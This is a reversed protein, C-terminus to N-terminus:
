ELPVQTWLTWDNSPAYSGFVYQPPETQGFYSYMVGGWTQPVRPAGFGVGYIPSGLYRWSKMLGHFDSIDTSADAGPEVTIAKDYGYKKLLDMVEKIPANGQGPALHDDWKGLNDVLHVNGIMKNKLLDEVQGLYWQKFATENEEPSKGPIDVWYRRWMNAHATDFTARVHREAIQAAEEKSLGQVKYPNKGYEDPVGETPVGQVDGYLIKDETLLDVMKERVKSIVWKLETPHCGFREPFINEITLMLPNNPDRSKRMAHVAAIAYLQASVKEFRKIPTILHNKSEAADRADQEQSYGSLRDYELRAEADKIAKDIMEVPDKLDPTIIGGLQGTVRLLSEDQKMIKWREDAPVNKSLEEYFEKAKRLKQLAEVQSNMGSSFQLAWGRAYGERAELTAQMYAEDPYRKLYYWDKDDESWDRGTVKQYNKKLWGNYEEAEKVFYNYHRLDTKFRQGTEDHEPVRGRVPDYTNGEKIKRGEYNVYDGEYVVQGEEDRQPGQIYTKNGDQDVGWGSKAARKWVPYSIKRSKQVQDFVRSDRDDLLKFQAEVIESPGNRFMNRRMGHGADQWGLNIRKGGTEDDLFMDTMPREFEGTHVVVSGGGATDAAFDVAARIEEMDMAASEISFNGREDRGMLGMINYASHTTLQVENLKAIEKIAQRQDEGFMGPTMANRNGHFKGPFGIEIAGAGMRIKSYVGAANQASIGMPVSMGIDKISPPAVPGQQKPASSEYMEPDMSNFYSAVPHNGYYRYSFQM